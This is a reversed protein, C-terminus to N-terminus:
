INRRPSVTLRFIDYIFASTFITFTFLFSWWDTHTVSDLWVCSLICHNFDISLKKM